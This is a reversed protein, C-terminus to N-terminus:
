QPQKKPQEADAKLQRLELLLNDRLGNGVRGRVNFIRSPMHDFRYCRIAVITTSDAASAGGASPHDAVALLEVGAEFYHDAYIQKAAVITMNPFAPPTYIIEHMDRLVRRLHPLEDRSWFFIEEAGSPSAQPFDLLWPALLPVGSVYVSDRLLIDLADSSRVGPGGDGEDDYVVMAANGRRRYENVYDVIWQRAYDSVREAANPAPDDIAARFRQMAQLPLKYNCSGPRCDRLDDLDGSPIAVGQVDALTAPNSFLHAALRGPARLASPLDRLRDIFFSRPVAVRVAGLVAVNQREATPLLRVVVEGRDLAALQAPPLRVDNALFDDPTRWPSQASAGGAAISGLVVTAVSARLLHRM